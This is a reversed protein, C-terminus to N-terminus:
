CRADHPGTIASADGLRVPPSDAAVPDAVGLPLSLVRDCVGGSGKADDTVGGTALLRPFVILLTAPSPLTLVEPAPTRTSYASSNDAYVDMM